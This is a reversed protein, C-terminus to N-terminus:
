PLHIRADFLRAVPLGNTALIALRLSKGRTNSPFRHIRQRLHNGRVAVLTKGDLILDYDRITEPQPGRIIRETLTDSPSLTLERHLGTCFSLDIGGIEQPRDWTWEVWSPLELSEWYNKGTEAWPGWAADISQSTGNAINHAPSAPNESSARVSAQQALDLPDARALGPLFADDRLLAQQIRRVTESDAQAAISGPAARLVAATTGVAQGMVACTAMVRTSAFAVHTASINRGAFFLNGVNRSYLARLPISYLHDIHHQVCPPENIADVGTPSPPRAVM